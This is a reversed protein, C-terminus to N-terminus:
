FPIYMPITSTFDVRWCGLISTFRTHTRGEFHKVWIPCSHRNGPMHPLPATAFAASVATWGPLFSRLLRLMCWALHPSICRLTAAHITTPLSVALFCSRPTRHPYYILSTYHWACGMQEWTPAVFLLDLDM